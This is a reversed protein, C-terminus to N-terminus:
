TRSQGVESATYHCFKCRYTNLTTDVRKLVAEQRETQGAYRYHSDYHRDTRNVTETEYQRDLLQSNITVMAHLKGCRPCEGGFMQTWVVFAIVRALIVFFIIGMWQFQPRDKEEREIEYHKDKIATADAHNSELTLLEQQLTGGGSFKYGLYAGAVAAGLIMGLLMLAAITKAVGHTQRTIRKAPSHSEDAGLQTWDFGQQDLNNVPLASM